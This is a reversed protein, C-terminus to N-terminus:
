DYVADLIGSLDLVAVTRNATSYALWVASASISRLDGNLAALVHPGDQDGLFVYALSSDHQYFVCSRGAYKGVTYELYNVNLGVELSDLFRVEAVSPAAAILSALLTAPLLFRM